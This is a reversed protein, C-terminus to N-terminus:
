DSDSQSLNLWIATPDLWCKGKHSIVSAKWGLNQRLSQIVQKIASDTAGNEIHKFFHEFIFDQNVQGHRLLLLLFKRSSPRLNRVKQNVLIQDTKIIVEYKETRMIPQPVDLSYDKAFDWLAQWHPAEERALRHQMLLKQLCELAQTQNNELRALEAHLLHFFQVDAGQLATTQELLSLAKATQADQLALAALELYAPSPNLTHEQAYLVAQELVQTAKKSNGSLRWTRGLNTQVELKVIPYPSRENARTYLRIAEKYERRVRHSAALAKLFDPHQKSFNKHRTRRVASELFTHARQDCQLLYTLGINSEAYARNLSDLKLHISAKEYSNIANGFQHEFYYCNGEKLLQVGLMRGKLHLRMAQFDSNWDLSQAQHRALGRRAFALGLDSGTLDPIALNLCLIAQQYDHTSYHLASALESNLFAATFGIHKPLALGIFELCAKDDACGNLVRAGSMSLEPSLLREELPINELFAKIKQYDDFHKVRKLGTFLLQNSELIKGNQRLNQCTILIDSVSAFVM